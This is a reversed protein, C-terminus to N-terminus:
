IISKHAVTYYDLGYNHLNIHNNVTLLFESKEVIHQSALM